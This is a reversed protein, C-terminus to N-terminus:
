TMGGADRSAATFFRLVLDAVANHVEITQSTRHAWSVSLGRLHRSELELLKSVMQYGQESDVVVVPRKEDIPPLPKKYKESHMVM